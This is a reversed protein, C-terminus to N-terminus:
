QPGLATVAAAVARVTAFEDADTAAVQLVMEGVGGAALRQEFELAREAAQGPTGAICMEGVMAEPVYPALAPWDPGTERFRAAVIGPVDAWPTDAFRGAYSPTSLYFALSRRAAAVADAENTAVATIVWQALHPEPGDAAGLAARVQDQGHQSSLVPHLLLGDTWERASALMADNLGSGYVPLRSRGAFRASNDLGAVEVHFFEGHFSVAGSASEVTRVIEVAERMRAVPRDDPLGFWRRRMGRTGAGLGLAFRGDYAEHLDLAAAALSLPHRTFSYTIGTGVRLTTTVGAIVGCRVLADRGPYETTWARHYGHAEARVALERLPTLHQTAFVVSRHM